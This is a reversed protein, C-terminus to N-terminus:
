KLLGENEMFEILEEPRGIREEVRQKLNMKKIVLMMGSITEPMMRAEYNELSVIDFRHLTKDPRFLVGELNIDCLHRPAYLCNLYTM